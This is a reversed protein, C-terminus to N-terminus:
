NPLPGPFPWPKQLYIMFVNTLPAVGFRTSQRIGKHARTVGKVTMPKTEAGSPLVIPNTLQSNADARVLSRVRRPGRTAVCAKFPSVSMAKLSMNLAFTCTHERFDNHASWQAM